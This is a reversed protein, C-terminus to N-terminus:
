FYKIKVKLIKSLLICCLAEATQPERHHKSHVVHVTAFCFGREKHFFVGRGTM